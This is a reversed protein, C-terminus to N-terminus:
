SDQIVLDMLYTIGSSRYLAPSQCNFIELVAEQGAPVGGMEPSRAAYARLLENLEKQARAPNTQRSLFIETLDVRAFLDRVFRGEVRGTLAGWLKNTFAIGQAAFHRLNKETLGEVREGLGGYNVVRIHNAGPQRTIVNIRTMCGATIQM